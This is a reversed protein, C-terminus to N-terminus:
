ESGQRSRQNEVYHELGIEALGYLSSRAEEIQEDTYKEQDPILERCQEISLM